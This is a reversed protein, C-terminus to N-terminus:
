TTDSEKCVWPSYGWNGRDMPNELCSNQLQKGNGEGPSRRWGPIWRKDGQCTPEKGSLWWPACISTYRRVYSHFFGPLVTRSHSSLPHTPRHNRRKVTSKYYKLFHQSPVWSCRGREQCLLASVCRSEERDLLAHYSAVDRQLQCKHSLLHERAQLQQEAEARM